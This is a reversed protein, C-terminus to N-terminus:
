GTRGVDIAGGGAWREQAVMRLSAMTRGYTKTSAADDDAALKRIAVDLVERM